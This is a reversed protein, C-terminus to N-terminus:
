IRNPQNRQHALLKGKVAAVTQNAIELQIQLKRLQAQLDADFLKILLFGKPM